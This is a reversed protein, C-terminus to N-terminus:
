GSPSTSEPASSASGAPTESTPSESTPSPTTSGTPSETPSSPSSSASEAVQALADDSLGFRLCVDAPDAGCLGEDQRDDTVEVYGASELNAREVDFVRVCIDGPRCPEFRLEIVRVCADDGGLPVGEADACADQVDELEEPTVPFEAVQRADGSVGPDIALGSEQMPLPVTESAQQACGTAAMVLVAAAALARCSM